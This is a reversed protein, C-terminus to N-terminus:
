PATACTMRAIGRRRQRCVGRGRVDRFRALGRAFSLRIELCRCCLGRKSNLVGKELSRNAPLSSSASSVGRPRADGVMAAAFPMLM